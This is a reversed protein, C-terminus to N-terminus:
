SGKNSSQNLKFFTHTVTDPNFQVIDARATDQPWVVRMTADSSDHVIRDKVLFWKYTIFNQTTDPWIKSVGFVIAMQCGPYGPRKMTHTTNKGMVNGNLGTYIFTTSDSKPWLAAFRVDIYKPSSDNNDKFNFKLPFTAHKKPTPGTANNNCGTCELSIILIGICVITFKKM